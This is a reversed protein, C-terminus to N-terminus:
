FAEYQQKLRNKLTRGTQSIWFIITGDQLTYNESNLVVLKKKIQSQKLGKILLFLKKFTIHKYISSQTNFVKIQITNM